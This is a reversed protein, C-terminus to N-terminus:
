DPHVFRRHAADAQQQKEMPRERPDQISLGAAIVLVERVAQEARAQLIMRGVTPDVPLRALERGGPTLERM